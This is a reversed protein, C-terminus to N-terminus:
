CTERVEINGQTVMDATAGSLQEAARAAMAAASTDTAWEVEEEDDQVFLGHAFMDLQTRIQPIPMACPATDAMSCCNLSVSPAIVVM